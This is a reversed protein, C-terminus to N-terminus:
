LTLKWNKIQNHFFKRKTFPAKIEKKCKQYLEINKRVNNKILSELKKEGVYRKRAITM